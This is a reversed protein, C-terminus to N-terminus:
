GVSLSPQADVHPFPGFTSPIQLGPLPVPPSLILRVKLVKEEPIPVRQKKLSFDALRARGLPKM